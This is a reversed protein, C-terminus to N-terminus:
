RYTTQDNVPFMSKEVVPKSLKPNTSLTKDNSELDIGVMSSLKISPVSCNTKRNATRPEPWDLPFKTTVLSTVVIMM